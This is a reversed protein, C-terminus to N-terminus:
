SQGATLMSYDKLITNLFEVDNLDSQVGLTDKVKQAIVVVPQSIEQERNVELARQILEIDKPTLQVVQPFRPEHRDHTSVFINKASVEEQRVIKVVSTGAVMDGLRQGKGGLAICVVAIAGSLIYFDIFAFIWRLIYNGITPTTGNLQVVQIKMMRKGPGQGNMFIEFALNYFLWPIGLLILWVYWREVDLQVLLAGVALSYLILILRDIFYALIRDGVSAIPYEIFVNQTTRVLVTQM